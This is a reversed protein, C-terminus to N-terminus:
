EILTDHTLEDPLVLDEMVKSVHQVIERKTKELDAEINTIWQDDTFERVTNYYLEGKDQQSIIWHIRRKKSEEDQVNLFPCIGYNKIIPSLLFTWGPHDSLDQSNYQDLNKVQEELRNKLSIKSHDSAMKTTERNGKQCKMRINEKLPMKNRLIIYHQM